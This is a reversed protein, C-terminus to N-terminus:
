AVAETIADNALTPATKSTASDAAYVAAEFDAWASARLGAAEVRLSAAKARSTELAAILVRQDDLPPLPFTLSLLAPKSINKMTPSTGTLKTEIQRRVDRIRLVETVFEPTVPSQPRWVM